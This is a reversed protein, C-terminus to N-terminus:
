CRLSPSSTPPPSHSSPRRHPAPRVAPALPPDDLTWASGAVGPACTVKGLTTTVAGRLLVYDVCSDHADMGCASGDSPSSDDSCATASAEIAVHGGSGLCLMWAGPPLLALLGLLLFTWSRIPHRTSACM